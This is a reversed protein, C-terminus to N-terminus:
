PMYLIIVAIKLIIELDFSISIVKFIIHLKFYFLLPVHNAIILKLDININFHCVINNYTSIFVRHNHFISRNNIKTIKLQIKLTMTM